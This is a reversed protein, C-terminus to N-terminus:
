PVSEFIYTGMEVCHDDYGGDEFEYFFGVTESGKRGKFVLPGRWVLKKDSRRVEGIRYAEGIVLDNADIRPM